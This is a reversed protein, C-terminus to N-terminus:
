GGTIYRGLTTLRLFVVVCVGGTVLIWMRMPSKSRRTSYFLAFNVVAVFLNLYGIGEIVAPDM